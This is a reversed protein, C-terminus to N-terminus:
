HELFSDRVQILIIMYTLIMGIMSTILSSSLSFLGYVTIRPNRHLLEISFQRLQEVVGMNIFNIDLIEHIIEGTKKMQLVMKNVFGNLIM